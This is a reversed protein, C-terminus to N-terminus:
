GVVGLAAMVKRDTGLLERAIAAAQEATRDALEPANQQAYLADDLRDAVAVLNRVQDPLFRNPDGNWFAEQCHRDIDIGQSELLRKAPYPVDGFRTEHLDHALALLLLSRQELFDLGGDSLWLALM